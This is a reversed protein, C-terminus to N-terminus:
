LYWVHHLHPLYARKLELLMEGTETLLAQLLYNKNLRAMIRAKVIVNISILPCKNLLFFVVIAVFAKMIMKTVLHLKKQLQYIFLGYSISAFDILSRTYAKYFM